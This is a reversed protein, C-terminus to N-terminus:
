IIKLKVTSCYNAEVFLAAMIKNLVTCYHNEQLVTSGCHETHQLIKHLLANVYKLHLDTNGYKKYFLAVLTNQLCPGRNKFTLLAV